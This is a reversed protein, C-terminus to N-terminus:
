KPLIGTLALIEAEFPAAAGDTVVLAAIGVVASAICVWLGWVHNHGPCPNPMQQWQNRVRLVDRLHRVIDTPVVTGPPLSRLAGAVHNLADTYTYVQSRFINHWAQNSVVGGIAAPLSVEHLFRNLAGAAIVNMNQLFHLTHYWFNYEENGNPFRANVRPAFIKGEMAHTVNIVSMKGPVTSKWQGTWAYQHNEDIYKHAVQVAHQQNWIPGVEVDWPM